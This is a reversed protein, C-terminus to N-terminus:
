KREAGDTYADVIGGAMETLEGFSDSYAPTALINRDAAPDFSRFKEDEQIALTTPMDAEPLIEDAGSADGSWVVDFTDKFTSPDIDIDHPATTSPLFEDRLSEMRDAFSARQKSDIPAKAQIIHLRFRWDDNTDVPLIGLNAFFLRYGEFAQAQDLSFLLVEAGLGLVAAATTEHLGARADVLIADYRLPDAFKEVLMRMHDSFTLTKGNADGALYARALKALVNTPNRLSRRGIAPIVDVRGHGGGVWSHGVIDAYFKEDLENGGELEVLYDLLGFEPLTADPLLLNGLGPAELDMDIALVRRGKSALEAAVVCLATSRGVGGKVSAFVFRAPSGSAPEPTRLWDAGVMRRDVLNVTGKFLDHSIKLTIANRIDKLSDDFLEDPTALAFGDKDVYAGLKSVARAAIGSRKDSSPIDRLMVFTLQGSADRLFLNNALAAEGLAERVLAAFAPLSDDFRIPTTVKEGQNRSSQVIENYRYVM